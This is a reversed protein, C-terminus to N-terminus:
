QRSILTLSGWTTNILTTTNAVTEFASYEVYDTISLQLMAVMQINLQSGAVQNISAEQNPILVNGAVLPTLILKGGGNNTIQFGAQAIYWGTIPATFRTPNVTTNHINGTDILNTDFTLSASVGNTLAQNATGQYALAHVGAVPTVVGVANALQKLYDQIVQFTDWITQGVRLSWTPQNNVNQYVNQFPKFIIAM